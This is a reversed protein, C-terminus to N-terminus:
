GTQALRQPWTGYRAELDASIMSLATQAYEMSRIDLETLAAAVGSATRGAGTVRIVAYREPAVETQSWVQRLVQDLLETDSGSFDDSLEINISMYTQFGDKAHGIRADFVGPISKLTAEAEDASREVSSTSHSPTTTICGVLGLGLACALLSASLTVRVRSGM